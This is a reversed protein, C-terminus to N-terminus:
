SVSVLNLMQHTKKERNRKESSTVDEEPSGWWGKTQQQLHWGSLASVAGLDRAERGQSTNGHVQRWQIYIIGYMHRHTHTLKHFTIHIVITMDSGGFELCMCVLGGPAKQLRGPISEKHGCVEACALYPWIFVVKADLASCSFVRAATWSKCHMQADCWFM